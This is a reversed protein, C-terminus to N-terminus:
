EGRYDAMQRQYREKDEVALQDYKGREKASLKKFQVSIIKAIDGFKAEPNEGRVTERVANSYLFFASMNRKPANPDKKKKKKKGVEELDDPPVYTSM